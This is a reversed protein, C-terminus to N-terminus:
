ICYSCKFIRIIEDILINQETISPKDFKAIIQPWLFNGHFQNTIMSAIKVSDFKKIKKDIIGEDIWQKLEIDTETILDLYKDVLQKSSIFERVIMAIEPIGIKNYLLELRDELYTRLQSEIDIDPNYKIVVSDKHKNLLNRIAESFLAEKSEFHKYLTRKSTSARECVRDMNADSYGYNCFEIIASDILAMHKIESIKM